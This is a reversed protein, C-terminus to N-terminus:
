LDIDTYVRLVKTVPNYQLPYVVVTQGRLDRVIYPDRLQALHGPFFADQEYTDGYVFPVDSPNIDRTFNGKSPAISVNEFEEYESSIVNVEMRANDPIIVSAAWKDIDPSGSELISTGGVLDIRHEIGRPTVTEIMQYGELDFHLHSREISSGLSIPAVRVPSESGMDVWHSSFLSCFFITLYLLTRFM